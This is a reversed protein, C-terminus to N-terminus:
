SALAKGDGSAGPSQAGDSKRAARATAPYGIAVVLALVLLVNAGDLLYRGPFSDQTPNCAHLLSAGMTRLVLGLPVLLLAGCAGVLRRASETRFRDDLTVAAPEQSFRPRSVVRGLTFWALALGAAWAVLLPVIVVVGPWDVVQRLHWRGAALMAWGSSHAGLWGGGGWSQKIWVPLHSADQDATAASCDFVRSRGDAASMSAAVAATALVGVGAAALGWWAARDVYDSPRRARLGSNRVVAAAPGPMLGEGILVGAVYGVALLSPGLLMSDGSLTVAYVIWLGAGAALGGRRAWAARRRAGDLSWTGGDPIGDDPVVPERRGRPGDHGLRRAALYRIGRILLWVVLGVPALALVSFVSAIPTIHFSGM